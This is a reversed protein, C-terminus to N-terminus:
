EYPLATFHADSISDTAVLTRTGPSFLYRKTPSVSVVYTAASPVSAFSYYGFTNTHAQWQQGTMPDALIILLGRIGLGYEDGVRGAISVPASTPALEASDFYCEVTEGQEVVINAKRAALNVTTNQINTMGPAPTEVCQISEIQWGSTAQETVTISGPSEFVYVSTNEYTDSPPADVDVLSFSSAGLNTAAYFFNTPSATGGDRTRVRKVVKVRGPEPAQAGGVWSSLMRNPSNGDINTVVGVTSSNKIANQVTAPSATPNMQLYLAAVGAIMPSAMSTGSMGRSGTNTAYDTSTIGSGPAWVDICSGFNSYSARADNSGTAGAVLAASVNAPSYACADANFNGASVAYTVGAAISNTISTTMSQSVGSANISVNAVAPSIHNATVWDVGEVFDSFQGGGSCPLVRVGYLNVAKAVGWTSSGITGAVHTGHGRCDIGNQGDDLADYAAVARGGFDVHNPNIGSDIVYVNVGAGNASYVYSSNLPLSTQDIRDLGWDPAVQTNVSPFVQGDEEVFKVRPDQSLAYAQKASMEVSFGKLSHAFVKDLNGGYQGALQFSDSEVQYATEPAYGEPANLAVIYRGPVPNEAKIFKSNKGSTPATQFSLTFLVFAAAFAPLWFKRM